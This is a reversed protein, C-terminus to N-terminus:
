VAKQEEQSVNESGIGITAASAVIIIREEEQRNEVTELSDLIIKVTRGKVEILRGFSERVSEPYM